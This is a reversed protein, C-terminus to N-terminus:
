LNHKLTLKMKPKNRKTSTRWVVGQHWLKPGWLRVQRRTSPRIILINNKKQCFAFLKWIGKSSQRTTKDCWLWPSALHSLLWMFLKEIKLCNNLYKRFGHGMGLEYNNFYLHYFPYFYLNFYKMIIFVVAIMGINM